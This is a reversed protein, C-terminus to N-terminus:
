RGSFEPTRKELFASVGEERDASASAAAAGLAEISAGRDEGVAGHIMAKTIENARPSMSSLEMAIEKAASLADEAQEAAFGLALAREAGVRRGFLAMEKIVAE